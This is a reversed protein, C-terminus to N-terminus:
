RPYAQYGLKPIDAKRLLDCIIKPSFSVFLRTPLNGGQLAVEALSRLRLEAGIGGLKPHRFQLCAALASERKSTKLCANRLIAKEAKM